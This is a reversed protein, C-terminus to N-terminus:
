TAAAPPIVVKAGERRVEHDGLFVSLPSPAPPGLTLSKCCNNGAGRSWRSMLFISLCGRPTVLLDKSLGRLDHPHLRDRM